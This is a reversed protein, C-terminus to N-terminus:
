FLNSIDIIRSIRVCVFMEVFVQKGANKEPTTIKTKTNESEWAEIM